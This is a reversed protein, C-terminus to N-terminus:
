VIQKIPYTSGFNDQLESLILGKKLYIESKAAPHARLYIKAGRFEIDGSALEIKTHKYVIRAVAAKFERRSLDLAHFKKLHDTIARM